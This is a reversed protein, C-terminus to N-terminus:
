LIGIRQYSRIIKTIDEPIGTLHLKYLLGQHWVSDFAKQLDLLIM